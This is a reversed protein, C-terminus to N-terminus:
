TCVLGTFYKPLGYMPKGICNVTPRLPLDQKHTKPLGCLKPLILAHLTLKKSLGQAIGAKNTLSAMQGETRSTKDKTLM